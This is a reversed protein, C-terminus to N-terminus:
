RNNSPNQSTQSRTVAYSAAENMLYEPSSRLISYYSTLTPSPKLDSAYYMPDKSDTPYNLSSAYHTDISHLQTDSLADTKSGQSTYDRLTIDTSNPKGEDIRALYDALFNETGPQYEMEFDFQSLFTLWRQQGGSLSKQTMMKTLSEHDTVVTFQRNRVLYEFSAIAEVIALAEQHHTPYANQSPTLKRTHFAAPRAADRTPGQGIWAGTGTPSADTFLWVMDPITYDIPRLVQHKEAARKVAEFAADQLDTWQWEANGPLETLLATITAAHPLFQSIYNVIGNFHQLEKQNKPRTWDMISRVKEPAPHLGNEDIMHDLIELKEAFFMSKRANVYFEAKKVKDCVAIIHQIHDKFINSFIFIDDIYVWVYEGLEKNFRDEMVKVFTAAANMDGQM